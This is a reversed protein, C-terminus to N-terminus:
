RERGYNLQYVSSTELCAWCWQDLFNSRGGRGHGGIQLVFDSVFFGAHADEAEAVDTQRERDFEGFGTEIDDADVDLLGFDILEVGAMGVDFVDGVATKVGRTLHPFSRAVVSKETMRVRSVMSIQTGVGRRLVLSGSMLKTTEAVSAM